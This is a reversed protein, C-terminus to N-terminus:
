SCCRCNTALAIREDDHLTDAPAAAGVAEAAFPLPAITEAVPQDVPLGQAKMEARRKATATADITGDGGFMVGYTSEAAARSVYGCRVDHALM